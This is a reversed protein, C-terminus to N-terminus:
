LFYFDYCPKRLHVQPLIMVPLTRARPTPPPPLSHANIEGSSRTCDREVRGPLPALSPTGEDPSQRDFGQFRTGGTAQLAPGLGRRRPRGAQYWDRRQPSAAPAHHMHGATHTHPLLFTSLSGVVVRPPPDSPEHTSSSRLWSRSTIHIAPCM